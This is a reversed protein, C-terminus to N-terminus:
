CTTDDVLLMLSYIVFLARCESCLYVRRHVFRGKIEIRGIGTVDGLAILSRM